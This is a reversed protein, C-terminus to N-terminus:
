VNNYRGVTMQSSMKDVKWLIISFDHSCSIFHNNELVIIDQVINRHAKKRAVSIFPPKISFLQVAGDTLGLIIM